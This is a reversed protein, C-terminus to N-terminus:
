FFRKFKKFVGKAKKVAKTVKKASKALRAVEDLPTLSLLDGVVPTALVKDVVDVVTGITQLAGRGDSDGLAGKLISKYREFPMDDPLAEKVLDGLKGDVINKRVKQVLAEFDEKDLGDDVLDDYLDTIASPGAGILKALTEPRKLRETLAGAIAGGFQKANAAIDVANRVQKQADEGLNELNPLLAALDEPEFAGGLVRKKFLPILEPAQDRLNTVVSFMTELVQDGGVDAGISEAEDLKKKAEKLQSFETAQNESLEQELKKSTRFDEALFDMKVDLGGLLPAIEAFRGAEIQKQADDLQQKLEAVQRTEEEEDALEALEDAEDRLKALREELGTRQDNERQEERQKAAGLATERAQDAKATAQAFAEAAQAADQDQGGEGMLREAEALLGSSEDHEEAGALQAREVAREAQRAKDEKNQRAERAERAKDRAETAKDIADGYAKEIDEETEQREGSNALELAENFLAASEAHNQADAARAQDIAREAEQRKRDMQRKREQAKARAKRATDIAEQYLILAKKPPTEEADGTKSAQEAENYLDTAYIEAGEARADELAVMVDKKKTDKQKQKGGLAELLEKTQNSGKSFYYGLMLATVMEVVQPIREGDGQHLLDWFVAIGFIFAVILALLGRVSGQPLGWTQKMALQIFEDKDEAEKLMSDRAQYARYFIFGLGLVIVGILIAIFLLTKLNFWDQDNRERQAELFKNLSTTQATLGQKIDEVSTTQATLDQKITEVSTTQATLDQKISEVSTVLTQVTDSLTPTQAQAPDLAMMVSGLVGFLVVVVFRSAQAFHDIPKM